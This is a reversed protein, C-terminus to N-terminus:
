AMFPHMLVEKITLRKSPQFDLMKTILDKADESMEPTKPFSINQHRECRLSEYRIKKNFPLRGTLFIFLLVGLSWVDAKEPSYPRHM